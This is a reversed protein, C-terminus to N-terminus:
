ELVGAAEATAIVLRAQQVLPRDIMKGDLSFAGRGSKEAEEAAALVRKAHDIEEETPTFVKNVVPIQKPHIVMKGRYGLDRAQHTEGNLGAPDNYDIYVQDVAPVSV